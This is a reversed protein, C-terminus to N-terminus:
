SNRAPCTAGTIALTYWSANSVNDDLPRERHLAELAAIAESVGARRARCCRASIASTRTAPRRRLASNVRSLAEDAAGVVSLLEAGALEARIREDPEADRPAGLVRVAGDRDGQRYLIGATRRRGEGEFATGM